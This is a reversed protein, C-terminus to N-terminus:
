SGAKAGSADATDPVDMPILPRRVSAVDNYKVLENWPVKPRMGMLLSPVAAPAATTRADLGADEPTHSSKSLSAEPLVHIM